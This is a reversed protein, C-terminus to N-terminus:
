FQGRVAMGSAGVLIPAVRIGPERGSRSKTDPWALWIATTAAGFVGAGVFGVSAITANRNARDRTDTLRSCEGANAGNSCGNSGLKASLDDADGSASRSDLGFGIGVGLSVITLGAGTLLMVTKTSSSGDTTTDHDSPPDGGPKSSRASPAPAAASGAARKTLELRLTAAAGAKAEVESKAAEYGDLSAEVVHNGPDLFVEADLPARGVPAADVAIESGAVTATVTLAFVKARASRAADEIRQRADATPELNPFNRLAFDLHEAADRYKGLKLESQGLLAATDFSKKLAWSKALFEQARPWDKKQVAERGQRFLDEPTAEARAPTAGSLAFLIALLSLLSRFSM